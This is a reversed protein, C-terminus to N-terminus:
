RRAIGLRIVQQIYMSPSSVHLLASKSFIVQFDRRDPQAAHSQAEAVTRCDLLLLSDRQDPRGDLASNLKEVRGFAVARERVLLEYVLSKGGDARLDHDCGLEAVIDLRM